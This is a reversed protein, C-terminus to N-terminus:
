CRLVPLRGPRRPERACRRRDCAIRWPFWDPRRRLCGFGVPKIRVLVKATEAAIVPKVPISTAPNEPPAVRELPSGYKKEPSAATSTPPVASPLACPSTSRVANPASVHSHEGRDQGAHTETVAISPHQEAHGSSLTSASDPRLLRTTPPRRSRLVSIWASPRSNPVDPRASSTTSRRWPPRTRARRPGCSGGSQDHDAVVTLFRHGKRYSVEDVGLRLLETLRRTDIQEAVVREVIGAVTEWSTRMLRTITTKDTRQALWAVVDEFDRTHRARPRAWPVEETRVRGCRRCHLRRIEAQLWLKSAGLDLHRWRRVSSDYVGTARRGCPCRPRGRRRRLGVVVGEPTFEVSAVTASPISLIKNFATTVRV